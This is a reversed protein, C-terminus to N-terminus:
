GIESRGDANLDREEFYYFLALAALPVILPSVYEEAIVKPTGNSLVLGAMKVCCNFLVIGLFVSRTQLALKIGRGLSRWANDKFYVIHAVSYCLLAQYIIRFLVDTVVSIPTSEDLMYELYRNPGPQNVVELAAIPLSLIYYIILLVLSLFLMELFVRKDRLTLSDRIRRASQGKIISRCEMLFVSLVYLESLAVVVPLIFMNGTLLRITELLVYTCLYFLCVWWHETTLTIVRAYVSSHM